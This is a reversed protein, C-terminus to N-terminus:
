AAGRHGQRVRQAIETVDVVAKHLTDRDIGDCADVLRSASEAMSEYGLRASETGLERATAAVSASTCTSLLAEPGTSCKPQTKSFM